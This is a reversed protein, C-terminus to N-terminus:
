RGNKQEVITIVNPDLKYQLLVPNAITEERVQKNSSFILDAVLWVVVTLFICISLYLIEKRNM